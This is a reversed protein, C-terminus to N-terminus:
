LRGLWLHQSDVCTAAVFGAPSVVVHQWTTMKPFFLKKEGIRIQANRMAIPVTSPASGKTPLDLPGAVWTQDDLVAVALEDDRRRDRVAVVRPTVFRLTGPVFTAAHRRLRLTEVSPQNNWQAADEAHLRQLMSVLFQEEQGVTVGGFAASLLRDIWTAHDAMGEGLNWLQALRAADIAAAHKPVHQLLITTLLGGTTPDVLKSRDIVGRGLAEVLLDMYATFREVRNQRPALAAWARLAPGEVVRTYLEPRWRAHRRRGERQAREVIDHFEMLDDGDRTSAM